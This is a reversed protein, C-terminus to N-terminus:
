RWITKWSSYSKWFTEKELKSFKEGRSAAERGHRSWEFAYIGSNPLEEVFKMPLTKVYCIPVCTTRHKDHGYQRDRAYLIHRRTNFWGTLEELSNARALIINKGSEVAQKAFRLEKIDAVERLAKMIM